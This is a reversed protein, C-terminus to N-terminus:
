HDNKLYDVNNLDGIKVTKSQGSPENVTDSTCRQMDSTTFAISVATSTLVVDDAHVDTLRLSLALPALHPTMWIPERLAPCRKSTISPGIVALFASSLGPM